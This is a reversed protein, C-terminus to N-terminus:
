KPRLEVLTNILEDDAGAKRLETAFGHSVQFNIGWENAMQAVRKPSVKGKLLILVDDRSLPQQGSLEERTQPDLLTIEDPSERGNDEAKLFNGKLELTGQHEYWARAKAPEVSFRYHVDGVTVILQRRDADYDISNLKFAAKAYKRSLLEDIQQNYDATFSALDTRYHEENEKQEANARDQRALYEATSEFMDKTLAPRMELESYETRLQNEIDSTRRRLIALRQRAEDLTLDPKLAPVVSAELSLKRHLEEMRVPQRIKENSAARAQALKILSDSAGAARLRTEVEQTFAFNVGCKNVFAQVRVDAVGAKLLQVVQGENLRGNCSIPAQQAKLSSAIFILAIGVLGLFSTKLFKSMGM